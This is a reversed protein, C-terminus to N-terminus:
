EGIARRMIKEQTVENKNFIGNIQGNYIVITRDATYMVEAMESSLFIVGLGQKCFDSLIKYIEVKAGIDIGKTPEDLLLFEPNTLMWKALIVKQQNGGSLFQTITEISSTKVNLKEAWVEALSKEKQKDIHWISGLQGISSITINSRVSQNLILGETKREGPVYAMKNKVAMRPSNTGTKKGNIYIEGSIIPVIGFLCRLLEECGSGMLGYLGLIEGRHLEFSINKLFNTSVNEVKILVDGIKRDPVPYLETIERGVMMTVLEDKSTNGTVRVGVSCGDRMVQVRDSITMVEELKHSIYIIAVGRQSLSRVLEYLKETEKLTLASTPEDMVLIKTNRAYAKGIEVLQKEGISLEELLTMPDWQDLGVLKQVELSQRRLMSYDVKKLAGKLPIHGLMINEAISMHDLYNLEQYIVSIGCNIAHSPNEIKVEKGSIFIQGEDLQYAGSLIKMMTSKGAGNEGILALIESANVELDVKNVAVVGPFEKYIRSMKLVPNGPM